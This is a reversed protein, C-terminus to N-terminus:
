RTVLVKGPMYEMDIATTAAFIKEKYLQELVRVLRRYHTRISERGDGLYIPFPRSVLFMSLEGDVGLHIESISQVPLIVDRGGALRILELAKELAEGQGNQGQERPDFGTIVPYDLDEPPLAPAFPVGFRDLYYLGAPMALLAVPRRERIVIELRNPWDRRPAASEIWDHAEIRQRVKGLSLTLLNSHVDVGSLALVEKKGTRRCGEIGISTLQFFSSHGLHRWAFFVAAGVLVGILVLTMFGRVLKGVLGPSAGVAPVGAQGRPQWNQRVPKRM